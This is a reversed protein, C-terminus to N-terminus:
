NVTERADSNGVRGTPLAQQDRTEVETATQQLTARVAEFRAMADHQGQLTSALYTSTQAVNSHGLWDRVTQLPVGGELWRSGAERRLDHFHLDDLKARKCALRWATKISSMRRGIEDGFVHADAPLPQGDPGCRRLDLIARLRSSVPVVRDRRTKTKAAPLVIEPRPSLRVQSWQLSLLEGRRCGTEIAAEVLGRLRPGCAVLLAEAENGELRRRRPAEAKLRVVTETGYKFPTEKLLRSRVACNFMARVLSLNRNATVAGGVIRATKDPAKATRAAHLRELALPTVDVALWDGFARVEGTPLEVATRTIAAIQYTDNRLSAARKTRLYDKEYHAFLQAITLVQVVPQRGYRGGRIETRLCDAERKAESKGTLRRGLHRDLSFRHAVGDWKFNFHWPHECKSWNRRPCACVKRLGDNRNRAV